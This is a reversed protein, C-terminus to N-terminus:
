GDTPPHQAEGRREVHDFLRALVAKTPISFAVAALGFATFYYGRDKLLVALGFLIVADRWQRNLM